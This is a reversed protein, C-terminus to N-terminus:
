CVQWRKRSAHSFHDSGVRVKKHPVFKAGLGLRQARKEFVPQTPQSSSTESSGLWSDVVDLANENLAIGTKDTSSNMINQPQNSQLFSTPLFLLRNSLFHQCLNISFPSRNQIPKGFGSQDPFYSCKQTDGKSRSRDIDFLNKVEGHREIPDM